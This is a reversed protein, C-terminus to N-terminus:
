LHTHLTQPLQRKTLGKQPSEPVCAWHRCTGPVPKHSRPPGLLNQPHCGSCWPWKPPPAPLWPAAPTTAEPCSTLGDSHTPRHPAQHSMTPPCHTRAPEAWGKSPTCPGQRGQLWPLTGSLWSPWADPFRAHGRPRTAAAGASIRSASPLRARRGRGHCELRESLTQSASHAGRARRPLFGWVFPARTGCLGRRRLFAMTGPCPRGAPPAHGLAWRAPGLPRM